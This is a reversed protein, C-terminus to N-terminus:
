SANAPHSCPKERDSLLYLCAYNKNNSDNKLAIAPTTKPQLRVLGLCDMPSKLLRNIQNQLQPLLM